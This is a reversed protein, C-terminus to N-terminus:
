WPQGAAFERDMAITNEGEETRRYDVAAVRSLGCLCPYFPHTHFSHFPIFSHEEVGLTLLLISFSFGIWANNTRDVRVTTCWM